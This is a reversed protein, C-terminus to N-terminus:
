KERFAKIGEQGSDMKAKIEEQIALLHEMMQEM